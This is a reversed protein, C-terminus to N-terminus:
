LLVKFFILPMFNSINQKCVSLCASELIDQLFMGKAPASSWIHLLAPIRCRNNRNLARHQPYDNCSDLHSLELSYGYCLTQVLIILIKLNLIFIVGEIPFDLLPIVLLDLKKDACNEGCKRSLLFKFITVVIQTM